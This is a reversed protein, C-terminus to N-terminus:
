VPCKQGPAAMAFFDRLDQRDNLTLTPKNLFYAIDSAYIRWQMNENCREIAEKAEKLGEGTLMRRVRIALLKNPFNWVDWYEPIEQQPLGSFDEANVESLGVTKIPFGHRKAADEIISSKTPWDPGVNSGELSVDVFGGSIDFLRDSMRWFTHEVKELIGVVRQRDIIIKIM